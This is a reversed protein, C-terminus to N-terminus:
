YNIVPVIFIVIGIGFINNTIVFLMYMYSVDLIGLFAAINSGGGRLGPM